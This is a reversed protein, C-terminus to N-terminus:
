KKTSDEEVSDAKKNSGKKNKAMFEGPLIEKPKPQVKEPQAQNKKGPLLNRWHVKGMIAYQAIGILNSIVFYLALGSELSLAIWGMLLPMYINMMGMMATSQDRPGPAPPPTMLKQQLYTTIVVVIAMIPIGFSIGPIQVSDRKALDMWLFKSNIPLIKSLDLGPLFIGQGVKTAIIIGYLALFLAIAGAWTYKPANKWKAKVVFYTVVAIVAAALVILGQVEIGNWVHKSLTLLDLPTAAMAQRLTQYLAIIIPLQILLPLCSSFPSIGLEKYLKMQEQALKEKEGKYKKQAEQWKPNRQLEQMANSSKIQKATLPQTILRILITFLIIAIGFNQGLYHYIAMLINVFPTIILGDWSLNIM